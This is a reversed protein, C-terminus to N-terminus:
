ADEQQSLDTSSKKPDPQPSSDSGTTPTGSEGKGEEASAGGTRIASLLWWMESQSIRDIAQPTGNPKPLERGYADTLNWNVIRDALVQLVAQNMQTARQNMEPALDPDDEAAAIDVVLRSYDGMVFMERMSGVPVVEVWQGEHPYYTQGDVIVPCEDCAIRKTPPRNSM